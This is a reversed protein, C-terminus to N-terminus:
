IGTGNNKIKRRYFVIKIELQTLAITITGCNGCFHVNAGINLDPTIRIIIM